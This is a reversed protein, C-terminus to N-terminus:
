AISLGPTPYNLATWTTWFRNQSRALAVLEQIKVKLKEQLKAVIPSTKEYNGFDLTLVAACQKKGLGAENPNNGNDILQNMAINSYEKYSAIIEAQIQRPKAKSLLFLPFLKM